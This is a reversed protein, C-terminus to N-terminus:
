GDARLAEIPDLKAARMAPYIGFFLGVATSVALSIIVASLPTKVPIPTVARVFAVVGYALALGMMGGVAALVASETMFQLVIHKKRAGLSRRLGIERTRETVSALMINMIVIGGVVLFVATLSVAVAFLNGTIQQWLAMISASGFVAFNDPADYPLHRWARMLMRAEDQSASMVEANQAQVFITVWDTQRHWDKYYTSFPILIYNDQSQGFASGIAEAVGVVEYTDTGARISKGIPDVNPFFKKVVDTGIFAVPSHHLDDGETLFRGASLNINRIDAYNPTVGTLDTSELLINGSRVDMTRDDTAAIHAATKMNDKLREYEEITVLPRKQAKIWADQSTIIGFRDVLYVNAGLNAIRDAVYFNLGAVVSMVAVLTAVALIVGLLTLFSRLKHARLADVALRFTEVTTVVAGAIRGRRKTAGAAGTTVRPLGTLRDTPAIGM